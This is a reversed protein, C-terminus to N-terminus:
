ITEEDEIFHQSEERWDRRRESRMWPCANGGGIVVVEKGNSRHDRRKWCKKLVTGRLARRGRGRGSTWTKIRAPVSPSSCRTMSNGFNRSDYIDVGIKLGQKVELEAKLIANIDEDLRDKPLRYNPSETALMGGLKLPLMGYVTTQHGKLQLYYTAAFGGPGGGLVRSRREGNVSCCRLRSGCFGAYDAAFGQLGRINSRMMWWIELPM